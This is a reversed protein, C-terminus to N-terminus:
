RQFSSTTGASFRPLCLAPEVKTTGRERRQTRARGPEGKGWRSLRRSLVDVMPETRRRGHAHPYVHCSHSSLLILPTCSLSLVLRAMKGCICWFSTLDIKQCSRPEFGSGSGRGFHPIFLCFGAPKQRQPKLECKLLGRQLLMLKRVIETRFSIEKLFM